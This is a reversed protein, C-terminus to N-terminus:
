VSARDLDLMDARTLTVRPAGMISHLEMISRAGTVPAVVGRKTLLWALAVTPASVGYEGAIRDLVVFIRHARRNLQNTVRGPRSDEPFSDNARPSGALTGHALPSSPFVAMGQAAAVLSISSEYGLREVLNYPTQVARFFPLGNAALVRAQFLREASFGAAGIENVKGARVLADIAGLSEELEVPADPSERLFLLDIREVGLRRLSADVGARINAPAIGPFDTGGGVTTALLMDDRCGRAKLWAGVLQESPRAVVADVSDILNGGAERYRDLMDVATRTEVTRGFRQAGLAVPYVWLDTDPIRRRAPAVVPYIGVPGSFLSPVPEPTPILLEPVTLDAPLQAQPAEASQTM